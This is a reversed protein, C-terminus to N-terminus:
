RLRAAVARCDAARAAGSTHAKRENLDGEFTSQHGCLLESTMTRAGFCGSRASHTKTLKKRFNMACVKGVKATRGAAVSNLGAISRKRVPERNHFFSRLSPLSIPTTHQLFFFSSRHCM